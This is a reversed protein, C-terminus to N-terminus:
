FAYTMTFVVGGFSYPAYDYYLYECKFVTAFSPRYNIGGTYRSYVLDDANHYEYRIYPTLNWSNIKESCEIFAGKFQQIEDFIDVDVNTMWMEALLKMSRLRLTIDAGFSLKDIVMTAEKAETEIIDGTISDMILTAEELEYDFTEDGKFISVGLKLLEKYEFCVHGGKGFNWKTNLDPLLYEASSLLKFYQDEYGFLKLAGTNVWMVNRYGGIFLDAKISKEEGKNLSCSFGDIHLPFYEYHSIILPLTATNNVPAYYYTNMPSLPTLFRGAQLSFYDFVQYKGSLENLMQDFTFDPRYVFVNKLTLRPTPEYNILVGAESLAFAYERDFYELVNFYDFETSLYGTINVRPEWETEQLYTTTDSQAFVYSVSFIIVLVSHIIKNM